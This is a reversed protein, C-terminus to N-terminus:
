RHPLFPRHLVLVVAVRGALFILFAIAFQAAISVNIGFYKKLLWATLPCIAIGSFMAFWGNTIPLPGEHILLVLGGVGALLFWGWAVIRAVILGVTKVNGRIKDRQARDEGGTGREM